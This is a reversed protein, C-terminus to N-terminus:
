EIEKKSERERERMLVTENKVSELCNVAPPITLTLCIAHTQTHTHAHSLSRAFTKTRYSLTFRPNLKPWRQHNKGSFPFRTM